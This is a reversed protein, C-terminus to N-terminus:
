DLFEPLIAKAENEPLDDIKNLRKNIQVTRYTAKDIFKGADDIKARTKELIENFTGFNKKIAALLKWVETSRKQVALTRFGMQLSNLLAAFTTPGTINVHYERQLTEFLGTHRLVESYLGEAPLFMIAFDTTNPPNIYKDRIDKAFSKITAILKSQQNRIEATNGSEYADLLRQYNEKPFKSDIPLLVNKNEDDKGPLVVAFEVREKSNKKCQANKIFQEPSLIEDLINELLLEGLNGRTKVNELIKKLGGVDSAIKKMEGLGNYVQELQKLVLSFSDNLKKQLSDQLQEDVTKRMKDLESRNEERLKNLQNDLVTKLEEIKKANIETLSKMERNISELKENQNKSSDKLIKESLLSFSSIKDEISKKFQENFKFNSKNLIDIDNSLNKGFGDLKENQTLSSNKLINETNKGLISIKESIDKRFLENKEILSDNIEKMENKISDTLNHWKENLNKSNNKEESIMKEFFATLDKKFGIFENKQFTINDFNQKKLNESINQIEERLNKSYLNFDDRSQKFSAQQSKMLFDFNNQLKLITNELKSNDLANKSFLNSLKILYFLIIGSIFILVIEIILVINQM